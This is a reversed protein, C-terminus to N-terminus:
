KKNILRSIIESIAYGSTLSMGVIVWIVKDKFRELKELRKKIDLVMGIFGVDQKNLSSGKLLNLIEEVHKNVLGIKDNAKDVQENCHDLSRFLTKVDKELQVYDM